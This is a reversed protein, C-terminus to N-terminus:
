GSRTEPESSSKARGSKSVGKSVGGNTEAESAPLVARAFTEAVAPTLDQIVHAYVRLTVSPDAHGLRAAVVHVPEGALLLTTAHVHRLDHLRIRPLPSAPHLTNYQDILKPLLQSPTDPYIPEGLATRFVLESEPWDSEVVLREEAQRARHAQLVRVTLPDISVSRRRGGKTTGVIRKREIVSVSGTIVISGGALDVAPWSLNLLEGRRAGTYAAL